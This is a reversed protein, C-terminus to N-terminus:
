DEEQNIYQWLAWIYFDDPEEATEFCNQRYHDYEYDLSEKNEEIWSQFDDNSLAKNVTLIAERVKEKDM